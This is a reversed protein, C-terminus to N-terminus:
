AETADAEAQPAPDEAAKVPTEVPQDESKAEAADDQPSFYDSAANQLLVWLAYMGLATGVPFNVLSLFGVIIGLIQGWRKDRLLGYGALMGPLALAAFFLLAIIGVITLIFLGEPDGEAAPIFGIGVLFVCGCLGFLLFFANAAILLWGLLHVHQRMERVSLQNM